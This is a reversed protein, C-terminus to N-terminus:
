RFAQFLSNLSTGNYWCNTCVPFFVTLSLLLKFFLFILSISILLWQCLTIFNYTFWFATDRGGLKILHLQQRCLKTRYGQSIIRINIFIGAQFHNLFHSPQIQFGTCLEPFNRAICRGLIIKKITYEPSYNLKFCGYHIFTWGFCRVFFNITDHIKLQWSQDGM